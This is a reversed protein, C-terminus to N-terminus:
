AAVQRLERERKADRSSIQYVGLGFALQVLGMQCSVRHDSCRIPNLSFVDVLITGRWLVPTTPRSMSDIKWLWLQPVVLVFQRLIDSKINLSDHGDEIRANELDPVTTGMRTTLGNSLFCSRKQPNLHTEDNSTNGLGLNPPQKTQQHDIFRSVVQDANVKELEADTLDRHFYHDLTRSQQVEFSAHLSKMMEVHNQETTNLATIEHPNTMKGASQRDNDHAYSPTNRVFGPRMLDIDILPVQRYLGKLVTTCYM